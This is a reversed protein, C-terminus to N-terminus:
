KQMAQTAEQGPKPVLPITQARPQFSKCNVKVDPERTQPAKEGHETSYEDLIPKESERFDPPEWYKCMRTVAESQM